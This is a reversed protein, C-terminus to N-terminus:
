ALQGPRRAENNWREVVLDCGPKHYRANTGALLVAPTGLSAKCTCSVRRERRIGPRAKVAM